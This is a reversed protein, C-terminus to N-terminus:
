NDQVSTWSRMQFSLTLVEAVPLTFNSDDLAPQSKEWKYARKSGLCWVTEQNDLYHPSIKLWSPGSAIWNWYYDGVTYVKKKRCCYVLAIRAWTVSKTVTNSQLCLFSRLIKLPIPTSNYFSSTSLWPTWTVQTKMTPTEVTALNWFYIWLLVFVNM